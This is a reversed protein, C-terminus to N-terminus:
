RLNVFLKQTPNKLWRGKVGGLREVGFNKESSKRLLLFVFRNRSSDSPSSVKFDTEHLEPPFRMRGRHLDVTHKM